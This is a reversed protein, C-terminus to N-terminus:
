TDDVDDDTDEPVGDWDMAALQEISHTKVLRQIDRSVRLATQTDLALAASQAYRNPLQSCRLKHRVLLEPEPILSEHQAASGSFRGLGHRRVPDLHMRAAHKLMFPKLSHVKLSTVAAPSLSLPPLTMLYQLAADARPGLLPSNTFQSGALPAGSQSDNDRVLFCGDQVDSVASYVADIVGRSTYADLVPGFAPRAQQKHPENSKDLQVGTFLVGGKEGIIACSQAQKFRSTQSAVLAFGGATGAVVKDTSLAALHCLQAYHHPEISPTPLPVTTAFKRKSVLPDRAATVIKANDLLFRLSRYATKAASRGDRRRQQETLETGADIAATRKQAAAAVASSNIVDLFKSTLQAPYVDSDVAM